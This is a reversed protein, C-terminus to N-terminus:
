MLVQYVRIAWDKWNDFGVSSPVGYSSGTRSSYLVDAWETWNDESVFTSVDNFEPPLAAAWEELSYLNPDPVTFGPQINVLIGALM